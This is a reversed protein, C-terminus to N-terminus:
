SQFLKRISEKLLKQSFLEAEKIIDNIYAKIESNLYGENEIDSYGNQIMSNIEDLLGPYLNNLILQSKSYKQESIKFLSRM